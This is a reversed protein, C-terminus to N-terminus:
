TMPSRPLLPTTESLSQSNISLSPKLSSPVGSVHKTASHYFHTQLGPTRPNRNRGFTPTPGAPLQRIRNRRIRSEVVKGQNGTKYDTEDEIDGMFAELVDELTIIGLVEVQGSSLPAAWSLDEKHQGSSSSSDTETEIRKGEKLPLRSERYTNWCQQLMEPNNTIIAMHSHGERFKSFAELLTEDPAVALPFRETIDGVMRYDDPSLVLLRKALLMGCIKKRDSEGDKYVTLSLETGASAMIKDFDSLKKVRVGNVACIFLRTNLQVRSAPTGSVVKGIKNWYGWTPECDSTPGPSSLHFGFSQDISDRRLTVKFESVQYIPVRSYRMRMVEALVGRDLITNHALMFIKWSNDEYVDDILHGAERAPTEGIGIVGCIISCEDDALKQMRVVHKNEAVEAEVRVWGHIWAGGGEAVISRNILRCATEADASSAFGIHSKSRNMDRRESSMPHMLVSWESSPYYSCNLFFRELWRKFEVEDTVCFRADHPDLNGNVDRVDLLKADKAAEELEFKNPPHPPNLSTDTHPRIILVSQYQERHGHMRIFAKLEDKSYADHEEEGLLYDLLRSIPYSIPSTMFMLFRVMPTFFAAIRLQHKGTFIASPIIEGFLLVFLVSILVAMYSPVLQDLFIPMCENAVANTLLLTVLLLHHKEVVPLIIQALDKEQRLEAHEETENIRHQMRLLEADIDQLEGHSSISGNQIEDKRQLLAKERNLERTKREQVEEDDSLEAELTVHLKMADISVLGMTLGAALGASCVCAFVLAVYMWFEWTDPKLLQEWDDHHQKSVFIAGDVSISGNEYSTVNKLVTVPSTTMMSRSNIAEKDGSMLMILVLMSVALGAAPLYSKKIKM